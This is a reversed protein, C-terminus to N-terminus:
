DHMCFWLRQNISTDYMADPHMVIGTLCPRLLAETM